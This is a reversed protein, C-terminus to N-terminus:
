FAQLFNLNGKGTQQSWPGDSGSSGLIVPLCRWLRVPGRDPQLMTGYGDRPVDLPRATPWAIDLCRWYSITLAGRELFICDEGEWGGM